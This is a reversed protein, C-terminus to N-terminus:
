NWWSFCIFLLCKSSVQMGINEELMMFTRASKTNTMLINDTHFNVVEKGLSFQAPIPWLVSADECTLKCEGLSVGDGGSGELGQKM